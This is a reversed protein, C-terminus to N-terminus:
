LNNAVSDNAGGIRLMGGTSNGRFNNGVITIWDSSSDEFLGYGSGGTMRNGVLTNDTASLMLIGDTNGRGVNGQVACSVSGALEVAETGNRCVNDAVSAGDLFSLVICKQGPAHVLNGVVNFTELKDGSAGVAYIGELGSKWVQNAQITVSRMRATTVGTEGLETFLETILRADTSTTQSALIGRGGPRAVKNGTIGVEVAVGFATIGDGLCTDIHNNAASVHRCGVLYLGSNDIGSSQKGVDYLENSAIVIDRPYRTLSPDYSVNIGSGNTGRVSNATVVVQRGGVIAIGRGSGGNVHNGKIVIDECAAYNTPADLYSVIGIADDGPASIHNGLIRIRKSARTVNIGDAYQNTLRCSQVLVDQCNILHIGTPSSKDLTVGEIRVVTAGDARILGYVGTRGTANSQKITLNRICVNTVGNLYITQSAATGDDILDITGVGDFITGSPPALQDTKYTGAPFFVTGGLTAAATIAANIAATDNASGDGVAGFARVDFWPRGSRFYVDQNYTNAGTWTNNASLMGVGTTPHVHDQHSASSSIGPAATGLPQPSSSGLGIGAALTQAEWQGNSNNYTLVQNDTPATSSVATGQLKSADTVSLKLTGDSNHSVNLYDNLITGWTNNDGGPTPLRAM